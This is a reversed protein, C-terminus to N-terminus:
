MESVPSPLRTCFNTGPFFYAEDRLFRSAANKIHKASEAAGAAAYVGLGRPLAFEWAVISKCEEPLSNSRLNSTQM